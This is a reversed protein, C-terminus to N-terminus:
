SSALDVVRHRMGNPAGTVVIEAWEAFMVVAELVREIACICMEFLGFGADEHPGHRGAVAVRDSRGRQGWWQVFFDLSCCWARIVVRRRESTRQDCVTVETPWPQVACRESM